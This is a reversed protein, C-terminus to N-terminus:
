SGYGTQTHPFLPSIHSPVALGLEYARIKLRSCPYRFVQKRSLQGHANAVVDSQYRGPIVCLLDSNSWVFLVRLGVLHLLGRLLRMADIYQM